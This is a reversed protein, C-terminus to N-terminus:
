DDKGLEISRDCATEVAGYIINELGNDKFYKLGAETTGGPSTVMERLKSLSLESEDSLNVTGLFTQIVLLLATERDFGLREGADAFCEMIRFIFGPGSGSLATVADMMEETVVVTKGVAKFIGQAIAMHDSTAEKGPALASVGKQILAPTNPMVRIIPIDRSIISHIMKIPIGAAISIILHDDRIEQKVEELVERIVQPKVAILITRCGQILDRNSLHTKLAYQESVEKLKAPDLDSAMIRDSGYLGSNILGKILANAMNGSGIFGITRNGTHM